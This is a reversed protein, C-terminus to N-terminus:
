FTGDAGLLLAIWCLVSTLATVGMAACSLAAHTKLRLLYIAIGSVFPILILFLLLLPHM